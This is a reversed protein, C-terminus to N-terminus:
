MHRTRRLLSGTYDVLKRPSFPKTLWRDVVSLDKYIEGAATLIVIPIGALAPDARLRAALQTGTLGPMMQDAVVLDPPDATILTLATAGDAATTVRHGAGRLTMEILALIDPDDDVAVVFAM